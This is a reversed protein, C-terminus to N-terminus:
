LGSAIRAMIKNLEDLQTLSTLQNIKVRVIKNEKRLIILYFNTKDTHTWAEDGINSISEHGPMQDNSAILDSYVKRASSVDIYKEFSYYLNGTHNTKSDKSEGAYTCKYRIIGDKDENTTEGLQVSQGLIIEADEKSLYRYSGRLPPTSLNLSAFWIVSLSIFKFAIM